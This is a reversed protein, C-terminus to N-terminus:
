PRLERQGIPIAIGLQFNAAKSSVPLFQSSIKPVLYDSAVFLHIGRKPAIHLALGFSDFGSSIFSYSLAASLWQLRAPNYNASLTLETLIANGFRTSSLLGASLGQEPLVIYEFGANVNTYLGTTRGQANGSQKFNIAEKINDISSTLNEDFDFEGEDVSSYDGPSVSIETEPAKLDTSNAASWSIFGLDTVALSVKAKDSIAYVAGLDLGLGYGNAGINDVEVTEFLGDEDYGAKFGSGKLTAKSRATWLDKKATVDLTEINLDIDAVGFLVKAKAGVSLRNDLFTRAHGVSLESYGTMGLRLDRIPYKLTEDGATFGRKLLEFLPKPINVDALFKVSVGVNWYAGNKTFFGVSVPQYNMNASFTGKDPLKDLFDKSSVQPHMFTVKEGNRDFLYNDLYMANTNAELAINSLGPFGVHGQRPTLAPNLATRSYSNQMFYDTRVSQALLTTGALLVLVSSLIYRKM